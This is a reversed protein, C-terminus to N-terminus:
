ELTGYAPPSVSSADMLHGCTLAVPTGIRLAGVAAMAADVADPSACPTAAQQMFVLQRPSKRVGQDSTVTAIPDSGYDWHRMHFKKGTRRTPSMLLCEMRKVTPVHSGPGTNKSRVFCTGDSPGSVPGRVLTAHLQQPVVALPVSRPSTTGQPLPSVTTGLSLRRLETTCKRPSLVVSANCTGQKGSASAAYHSDSTSTKPCQAHREHYGSSPAVGARHNRNGNSREMGVNM